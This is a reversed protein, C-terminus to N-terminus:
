NITNRLYICVGGGQRSRDNRILDYGEIHIIGDNITSNLRTENLALVDLVKDSMILNIEDYHKVLSVVNLSAMKFGRQKPFSQM